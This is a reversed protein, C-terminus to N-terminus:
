AAELLSPRRVRRPIEDILLRQPLLVIPGESVHQDGVRRTDRDLLNAACREQQLRRAAAITALGVDVDITDHDPVRRIDPPRSRRAYAARRIRAVDWDIEAAGPRATTPVVEWLVHQPASWNFTFWRQTQNPQLTGRFQVGTIM